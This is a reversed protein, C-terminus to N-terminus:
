KSDNQFTVTNCSYYLQFIELKHNGFDHIDNLHNLEFLHSFGHKFRKREIMHGPNNMQVLFFTSLVPEQAQPNDSQTWRGRAGRPEDM